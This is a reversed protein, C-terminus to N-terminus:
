YNELCSLRGVVSGVRRFFEKQCQRGKRGGMSRRPNMPRRLPCGREDNERIEERGDARRGGPHWGKEIEKEESSGEGVPGRAM